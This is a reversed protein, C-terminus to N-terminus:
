GFCDVDFKGVDFKATTCVFPVYAPVYYQKIQNMLTTSLGRGAWFDQLIEMENFLTESKYKKRLSVIQKAFIIYNIIQLLPATKVLMTKVETEIRVQEDISLRFQEKQSWDTPM